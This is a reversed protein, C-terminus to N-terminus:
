QKAEGPMKAPNNLPQLMARHMGDKSAELSCMLEPLLFHGM